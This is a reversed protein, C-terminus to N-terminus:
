HLSRSRPTSGARRWVWFWRLVKEQGKQEPQVLEKLVQRLGPEPHTPSVEVRRPDSCVGRQLLELGDQGLVANGRAGVAAGRAGVPLTHQSRLDQNQQNRSLWRPESRTSFFM